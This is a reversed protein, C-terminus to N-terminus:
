RAVPLVVPIAMHPGVQHQDVPAEIGILAVRTAENQRAEARMGLKIQSRPAPRAGHRVNRQCKLQDQPQWLANCEEGDINIADAIMVNRLKFGKRGNGLDGTYQASILAGFLRKM